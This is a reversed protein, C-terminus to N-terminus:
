KHVCARAPGHCDDEDIMARVCVGKCVCVRVCECRNTGVFALTRMTFICISAHTHARARMGDREDNSKKKKELFSYFHQCFRVTHFLPSPFLCEFM